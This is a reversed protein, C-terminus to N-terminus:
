DWVRPERSIAGALVGLDFCRGRRAGPRWPRSFFPWRAGRASAGLLGHSAIVQWLRIRQVPKAPTTDQTKKQELTNEEQGHPSGLLFARADKWAQFQEFITPNSVVFRVLLCGGPWVLRKSSSGPFCSPVHIYIYIYYGVSACISSDTSPAEGTREGAKQERRAHTTRGDNLGKDESGSAWLCSLDSVRGSSLFSSYVSAVVPQHNSVEM